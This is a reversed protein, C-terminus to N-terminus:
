GNLPLVQPPLFKKLTMKDFFLESTGMEVKELVPLPKINMPLPGASLPIPKFDHSKTLTREM